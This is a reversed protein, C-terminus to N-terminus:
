NGWLCKISGLFEKDYHQNVGLSVSNYEVADFLIQNDFIFRHIAKSIATLKINGQRSAKEKSVLGDHKPPIEVLWVCKGVIDVRVNGGEGKLVFCISRSLLLEEDMFPFFSARFSAASALFFVSRTLFSFSSTMSTSPVTISDKGFAM